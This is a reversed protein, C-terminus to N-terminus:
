GPILHAPTASINVERVDNSFTFSTHNLNGAKYDPDATLSINITPHDEITFGSEQDSFTSQVVHITQHDSQTINVKYGGLKLSNINNIAAPMEAPRYKIVQNTKKRIADGIATLSDSDVLVQGM